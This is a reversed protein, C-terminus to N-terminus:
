FNWLFPAFYGSSNDEVYINTEWYQVFSCFLGCLDLHHLVGTSLYETVLCFTVTQSGFILLSVEQTRTSCCFNNSITWLISLQKIWGRWTYQFRVGPLFIASTKANKSEKLTFLSQKLIQETQLCVLKRGVWFLSSGWGLKRPKVVSLLGPKM